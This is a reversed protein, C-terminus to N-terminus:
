QRRRENGSLCATVHLTRPAREDWRNSVPGRYVLAVFIARETPPLESPPLLVPPALVSELLHSRGYIHLYAGNYANSSQM